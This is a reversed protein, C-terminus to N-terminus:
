AVNGTDRRLKRSSRAGSRRSLQHIGRAVLEKGTGTPGVILVATDRPAVLRALRYIQQMKRSAGIM